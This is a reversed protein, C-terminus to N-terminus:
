SVAHNSFRAMYEILIYGGLPGALHWASHWLMAKGFFHQEMRSAGRRMFDIDHRTVEGEIPTIDTDFKKQRTKIERIMLGFYVNSMMFCFSAIAFTAALICVNTGDLDCAFYKLASNIFLLIAGARDLGSGV